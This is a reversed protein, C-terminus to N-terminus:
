SDSALGALQHAKRKNIRSVVLADRRVEDVLYYGPKLKTVIYGLGCGLIEESDKETAVQLVQGEKFKASWTDQQRLDQLDQLADFLAQANVGVPPLSPNQQAIKLILEDLRTDSVRKRHPKKM